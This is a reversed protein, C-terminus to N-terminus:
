GGSSVGVAARGTAGAVGRSVSTTAASSSSSSSPGPAVGSVRGSGAYATAGSQPVYVFSGGGGSRYDCRSEGYVRECETRTRFDTPPPRPPDDCAALALTAAAALGRVRPDRSLRRKSM